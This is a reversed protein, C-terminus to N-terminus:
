PQKKASSENSTSDILIKADALTGPTEAHILTRLVNGVTQHIKECVGNSIQPLTAVPKQYM